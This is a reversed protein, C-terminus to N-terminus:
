SPGIFFVLMREIFENDRTVAAPNNPKLNLTPSDIEADEIETIASDEDLMGIPAAGSSAAGTLPPSLQPPTNTIGSM